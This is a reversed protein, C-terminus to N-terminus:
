DAPPRLRATAGPCRRDSPPPPDPPATHAPWYYRPLIRATSASAGPPASPPHPATITGAITNGRIKLISPNRRKVPRAPNSPKRGHSKLLVMMTMQMGRVRPGPSPGRQLRGVRRLVGQGSAPGSDADKPKACPAPDISGARLRVWCLPDRSMVAASSRNRSSVVRRRASGLPLIYSPTTVSSASAPIRTRVESRPYRGLMESASVSVFTSLGCLATSISAAPDRSRANAPASQTLSNPNSRTSRSSVPSSGTRRTAAAGVRRTASPPRFFGPSTTAVSYTRRVSRQSSRDPISAVTTRDNPAVSTNGGSSASKM